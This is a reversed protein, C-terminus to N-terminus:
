QETALAHLTDLELSGPHTNLGCMTIARQDLKRALTAPDNHPAKHPGFPAALQGVLHAPCHPIPM